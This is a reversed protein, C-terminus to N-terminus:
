GSRPTAAVLEVYEDGDEGELGFKALVAAPGEAALREVRAEGVAGREGQCPPGTIAPISAPM